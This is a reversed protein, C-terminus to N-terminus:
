AIRASYVALRVCAAQENETKASPSGTSCCATAPDTKNLRKGGVHPRADAAEEVVPQRGSYLCGRAPEARRSRHEGRRHESRLRVAVAPVGRGDPSGHCSGANCGQKTLVALAETRFRVSDPESQGSVEVPVKITHGGVAVAIEAKGDKKPLAVGDRVEVVASSPTFTADRTLDRTEGDAFHGTVVLQGVARKSGLVVKPPYVDIRAPADAAVVASPLLAVFCLLVLRM